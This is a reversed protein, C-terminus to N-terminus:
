TTKAVKFIPTAATPGARLPITSTSIRTSNISGGVTQGSSSLVASPLVVADAVRRTSYIEQWQQLLMDAQMRHDERDDKANYADAGFESFLVPRKLTKKVRDYLDRMSPGRYVNSGMIDVDKCHKAILDIYQLDGNTLSM